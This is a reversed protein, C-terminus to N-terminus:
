SKPIVKLLTDPDIYRGVYNLGLMLPKGGKEVIRSIFCSNGRWSISEWTVFGGKLRFHEDSYNGLLDIAKVWASRAEEIEKPNM